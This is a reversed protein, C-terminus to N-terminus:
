IGQPRSRPRLSTDVITNTNVGPLLPTFLPDLDATFTHAKQGKDAYKSKNTDRRAVSAFLDALRNQFSSVSKNGQIFRSYGADKLILFGLSEQTENNYKDTPKLGLKDVWSGKIPKEATGGEGFLSTRVAQYKGVASSNLKNKPNRLMKTQYDYLEKMTMESIPKSPIGFKGYGLVMDYPTTGFGQQQKLLVDTAGEGVSIRDLLDQTSDVEKSFTVPPSMLGETPTKMLDEVPTADIEKKVVVTGPMNFIPKNPVIKEQYKEQAIKVLVGPMDFLSAM